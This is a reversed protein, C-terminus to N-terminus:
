SMLFRKTTSPAPNTLPPHCFGVIVMRASAMRDASYPDARERGAIRPDEALLHPALARRWTDLEFPACLAGQVGALVSSAVGHPTALVPVDCSLAELVALEYGPAKLDVDLEVVPHVAGAPHRAPAALGLALDGVVIQAVHQQTRILERIDHHLRDGRQEGLIRREEQRARRVTM